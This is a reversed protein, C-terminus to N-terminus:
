ADPSPKDGLLRKLRHGLTKELERKLAAIEEAQERVRTEAAESSAQLGEVQKNKEVLMAENRQAWEHLEQALANKEQLAAENRQAWQEFESALESTRQLRAEYDRATAELASSKEQLAAESRRAWEELERALASKERLATESRHAWAELEAVAKAKEQLAAENDEAWRRTRELLANAEALMADSRKAWRETDSVRERVGSLSDETKEAWHRNREMHDILDQHAGVTLTLFAPWASVLVSAPVNAALPPAPDIKMPAAKKLSQYLAKYAAAQRPMEFLDMARARGVAGMRQRATADTVLQALNSALAAVDGVPALLGTEGNIIADKAGGVDFAVVPVGCAMAELITNPLNDELSPTVCIDCASLVAAVDAERELTGIASAPFPLDRKGDVEGLIVLRIEAQPTRQAVQALAAELEALGKRRERSDLPTFGICITQDTVNLRKRAAARSAATFVSADLSNPITEVRANAFVTSRKAEGALWKSPTVVALNSKAGYAKIKDSLRQEAAAAPDGSLQPCEACASMFRDCGAAYHCGGTFPWMDHLTWVIPKGLAVLQALTEVSQFFSTWHLNIVDADAIAPHRTLPIGAYDLTFLTDSQKSRSPAIYDAQVAEEFLWAIRRGADEALDAHEGDVEIADPADPAGSRCLLTSSVGAATLAQSLRRAAVGAGGRLSSVIHVVKM